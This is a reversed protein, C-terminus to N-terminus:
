GLVLSEQSEQKMSKRLRLAEAPKQKIDSETGSGSLINIGQILINKTANIDRDHHKYLGM